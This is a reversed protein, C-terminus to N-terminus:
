APMLAPNTLACITGKPGYSCPYNPDGLHSGIFRGQWAEFTLTLLVVAAMIAIGCIDRRELYPLVPLRLCM